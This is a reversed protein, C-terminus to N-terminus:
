RGTHYLGEVSQASNVVCGPRPRRNQRPSNWGRMAAGAARRVSHGPAVAALHASGSTVPHDAAVELKGNRVRGGFDLSRRPPLGTPRQFGCITESRARGDVRSAADAHGCRKRFTRNCFTMSNLEILDHSEEAPYQYDATSFRQFVDSFNAASYQLQAAGV